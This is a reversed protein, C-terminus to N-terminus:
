YNSRCSTDVLLYQGVAWVFLPKAPLQDNFRTSTPAQIVKYQEHLQWYTYTPGITSTYYLSHYQDLYVELYSTTIPGMIIAVKYQYINFKQVNWM